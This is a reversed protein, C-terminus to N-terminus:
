STVRRQRPVAAVDLTAVGPRGLRLPESSSATPASGPWSPFPGEGGIVLAPRRSLNLDPPLVRSRHRRSRQLLHQVQPIVGIKRRHETIFPLKIRDTELQDLRAELDAIRETRDQLPDDLVDGRVGSWRSVRYADTLQQELIEM